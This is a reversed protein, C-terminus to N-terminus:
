VGLAVNDVRVGARDLRITIQCQRTDLLISYSGPGLATVRIDDIVQGHIAQLAKTVTSTEASVAAGRPTRQFLRGIAMEGDPGYVSRIRGSQLGIELITALQGLRDEPIHGADVAQALDEYRQRVAPDRQIRAVARVESALLEQETASLALGAADTPTRTQDTM